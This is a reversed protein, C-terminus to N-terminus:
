RAQPVGSEVMDHLCLDSAHGLVDHPVSVTQKRTSPVWSATNRSARGRTKLKSLAKSVRPKGKAM